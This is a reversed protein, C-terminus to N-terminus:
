ESLKVITEAIDGTEELVDLVEKKSKGTKDMIMEIDEDSFGAQEESADGQVQWSVQGQMETRMVSPNEIVIRGDEKEIIVRKADVAEQKIGMKAMMGQLKRPDMGGLGPIM